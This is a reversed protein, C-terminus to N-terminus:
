RLIENNIGCPVVDKSEQGEHRTDEITSAPGCVACLVRSLADVHIVRHAAFFMRRETIRVSVKCTM